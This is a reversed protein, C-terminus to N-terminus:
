DTLVSQIFPIVVAYLLFWIVLFIPVVVVGYKLKSTRNEPRQEVTKKKFLGVLILIFALLAAINALTTIQNITACAEVAKDGGFAQGLLGIPGQCIDNTQATTWGTTDNMPVVYVFAPFILLVIGLVVLGTRTKEYTLESKKPSSQLTGLDVGTVHTGCKGCFKAEPKLSQGCNTCFSM